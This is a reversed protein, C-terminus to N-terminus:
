LSRDNPWEKLDRALQHALDIDRQQSSKDGGCLLIVVLAGRQVFYVRYGPGYDIRLEHVGQGVSKHDGFNGEACREIRLLIRALARQDRLGRLWRDFVPHRRIDM